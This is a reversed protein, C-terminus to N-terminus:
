TSKASNEKCDQWKTGQFYRLRVTGRHTALMTSQNRLRPLIFEAFRELENNLFQWVAMQGKCTSAFLWKRSFMQLVYMYM